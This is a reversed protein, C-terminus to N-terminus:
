LADQFLNLDFKCNGINYLAAINKPDIKLLKDFDSIAAKSDKLEEFCLGRNFLAGKHNPNLIIAEDILTIAQRCDGKAAVKVSEAVIDDASKSRCSSLMIVTALISIIFRITM